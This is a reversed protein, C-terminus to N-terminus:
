KQKLSEIKARQGNKEERKKIEQKATMKNSENGTSANKHQQKLTAEDIAHL